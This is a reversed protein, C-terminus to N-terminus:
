FIQKSNVKITPIHCIKPWIDQHKNKCGKELLPCEEIQLLLLSSPLKEGAMNELELCCKIHLQQLSTLRHLENCDLTELDVLRIIELTTLSPLHPLLGVEPFSKVRRSGFGHIVLHTLAEFKGMSSLGKLQGENRNMCLSKLNPPLGGKPFRSIGRCYEVDLSQLNPLLTDMNPPLAELTKCFKVHLHTLNPAALGEKTLSVLKLCEYITLSQLANHPPESMSISELNACYGIELNKLIPFADLSLSALSDCSSYIRLEVLDYKQQQQQELFELKRCNKIELKQLSKPLCNALSSVVSLFGAIRIEQLSTLHHIISEM